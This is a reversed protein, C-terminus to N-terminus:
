QKQSSMEQSSTLLATVRRSQWILIVCAISVVPLFQLLELVLPAVDPLTAAAIRFGSLVNNGM